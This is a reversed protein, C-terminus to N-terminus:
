NCDLHTIRDGEDLERYQILCNKGLISESVLRFEHKRGDDFVVTTYRNPNQSSPELKVVKGQISRAYKDGCNACLLVALGFILCLLKTKM